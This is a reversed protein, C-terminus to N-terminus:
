IFLDDPAGWGPDNSFRRRFSTGYFNGDSALTLGAAPEGDVQFSFSHLLTFDGQPSIMFLTGSGYAGGGKTTGYFIGNTGQVLAGCPNHGGDGLYSFAHLVTLAGETTLKFVTGGASPGGISAVGYFNGDIGQTLPAFPPGGDPNAATFSHIATLQTAAETSLALCLGVTATILWRIRWLGLLSWFAM